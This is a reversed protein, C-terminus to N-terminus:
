QTMLSKLIEWVRDAEKGYLLVDNETDALDINLSAKGDNDKATRYYVSIIRDINVAKLGGEAHNIEIFKM